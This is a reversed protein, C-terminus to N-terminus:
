DHHFREGKRAMDVLLQAPKFRAGHRDEFARLRRVVEVAGLTDMWRFPGGRFPPFGLGFVAGIDGDRPSHLIGEQLCLAAENCLRLSLRQQIEEAPFGRRKRGEPLLDYLTEDVPKKKSGYSYFGRGNKRGLRGDELVKRLAEPQAMRDGFAELLTGSVKQAVDLGVEDLLMFPGVPFGWDVLARDVAAIDAGESLLWAAESGYPSLIRTTYFGPGDEVVIVTKGQAKGQAVATAVVEPATQKTRIVELLPMKEVPSFYHMGVVNWPRKAGEALKTIPLTSTNSAFVCDEKTVAEVQRIVQRKLELDEFVAEVVLDVNGFGEYRTGGTIRGMVAERDIRTISRRKVRPDLVSRVHAFARGLASDDKEQVRVPLKANAATVYAIGGGMLGGGIVALENVKRPKVSPDDVGSDKKLATQAFFIRILQKSVDTHVLGGFLAAEKALGKEMGEDLGARVAEIAAPIAPYNGRSKAYAAKEAQRFLLRRGVPNDELALAMLLKQNAKGKKLKAMRAQRGHIPPRRGNALEAARAKAVQLLLPAPVVEDVLGMKLARSAKLQRATLILDLAAQAGVVRPLRQTGGAGPILGLQTEPLGLKTKPNDTAIRYTCALALELGGGLTAGDMAAVVPKPSAALEDFIRQGSQALATADEAQQLMEIKAGAVFVDKKGSAFVISTVAPDSQLTKWSDLLKEGLDTSITNVAEDRDDLTILAVGDGDVSVSFFRNNMQESATAM